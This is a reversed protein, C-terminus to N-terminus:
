KIDEIKGIQTKLVCLSEGKLRYKYIKGVPAADMFYSEGKKVQVTIEESKENEYILEGEGALVVLSVFSKSSVADDNDGKFVDSTFYNCRVMHNGFHHLSYNPEFRAVDLAKKVHLERKNGNSDVRDYDFVRYTVNSNQQVEAVVVGQCIAHITGAPIYFCDGAKVPVANLLGTFTGDAIMRMAEERSTTRNVGYYIQANEEAEVIYWMETKGFEGEAQLAYSNNPHVQISLNERADILKTIIPFMEFFRRNEGMIQPGCVEIYQSLTLGQYEGSDIVSQGDKHCSLVWAEALREGDYEIGFESSLKTGGWLYDTCFPRLRVVSM